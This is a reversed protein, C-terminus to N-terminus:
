LMMYLKFYKQNRIILILVQNSDCTLNSCEYERSGNDFIM